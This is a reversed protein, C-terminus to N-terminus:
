KDLSFVFKTFNNGKWSAAKATSTIVVVDGKSPDGAFPEARLKGLAAKMKMQGALPKWTFQSSPALQLTVTEGIFDDNECDVVHAIVDIYKKLAAKDYGAEKADQLAEEVSRGDNVFEGDESVCFYDKAEEDNSGPTIKWVNKALIPQFKISKGLEEEKGSVQHTGNSGTISPFMGYEADSVADLIEPDKCFAAAGSPVAIDSSQRTAVQTEEQTTEEKTTEEKTTEEQTTTEEQAKKKLAM